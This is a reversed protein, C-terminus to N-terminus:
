FWEEAATREALLQNEEHQMTRAISRVQEMLLRGEEMDAENLQGSQRRADIMLEMRHIRKQVITYLEPILQQQSPNDSTLSELTRIGELAEDCLGRFPDLYRNKETLLFGRQAAEADRLAALTRELHLTVDNTHKVLASSELLKRISVYSIASSLILLLISLGFGIQLNVNAKKKM